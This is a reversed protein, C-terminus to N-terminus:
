HENHFLIKSKNKVRMIKKIIEKRNSNLIMLNILKKMDENRELDIGVEFSNKGGRNM